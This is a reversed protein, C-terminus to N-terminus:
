DTRHQCFQPQLMSREFDATDTSIEHDDRGQHLYSTDPLVDPCRDTLGNPRVREGGAYLVEQQFRRQPVFPQAARM